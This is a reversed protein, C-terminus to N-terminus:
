IVGVLTLTVLLQSFSLQWHSFPQNACDRAYHYWQTLIEAVLVYCWCYCFIKLEFYQLGKRDCSQYSNTTHYMHVLVEARNCSVVGNISTKWFGDV